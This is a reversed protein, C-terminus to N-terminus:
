TRARRSLASVVAAHGGQAAFHLTMQTPTTVHLLEKKKALVQVQSVSGLRVAEMLSTDVDAEAAGRM